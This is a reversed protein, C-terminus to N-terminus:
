TIPNSCNRCATSPQATWSRRISERSGNAVTTLKELTFGTRLSTPSPVTRSPYAVTINQFRQTVANPSSRGVTWSASLSASRDWNGIFSSSRAFPKPKPRTSLSSRTRPQTALRYLAAPGNARAERILRARERESKPVFRIVEGLALHRNARRHLRRAPLTTFHPTESLPEAASGIRRPRPHTIM